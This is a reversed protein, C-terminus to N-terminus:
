INLYLFVTLCINTINLYLFVPLRINTHSPLMRQNVKEMYVYFSIIYLMNFVM